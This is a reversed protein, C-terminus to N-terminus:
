FQQGLEAIDALDQPRGAEQKMKILAPLALIPVAVDEDLNVWVARACEAEMDFPEYVFVDIPTRQHLDSWLKLVLMEKERRWAERNGADAFQEPTVPVAMRYGVNELVRLGSVINDPELGIVLDLDATMREYGHAVVALGGVVLYKVEAENLARFITILSTLQM